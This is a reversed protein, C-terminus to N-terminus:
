PVIIEVTNNNQVVETGPYLDCVISAPLYIRDDIEVPAVETATQIANIYVKGSDIAVTLTKREGQSIAHMKEGDWEVKMGLAAEDTLYRVPVMMVGGDTTFPAADIERVEGNVDIQALGETFIIRKDITITNFSQAKNYGGVMADIAEYNKFTAVSASPSHYTIVGMSGPVFRLPYADFSNWLKNVNKAKLNFSCLTGDKEILNGGLSLDMFTFSIQGNITKTDIYSANKILANDDLKFEVLGDETVGIDFNDEDYDFLFGLTCIGGQYAPMGASTNRINIDVKIDGTIDNMIGPAFYIQVKHEKQEAAFVSAINLVLILTLILSILKKM